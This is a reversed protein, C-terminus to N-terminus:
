EYICMTQKLYICTSAVTINDSIKFIEDKIM